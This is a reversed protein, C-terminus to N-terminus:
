PGLNVQGRIEGGGNAATHINAYTLGGVLAALQEANLTVTGALRGSAGFAGAPSLPFLVGAAVEPGAPGHIHAATAAGSLGSYNIDYTLQNGILTLIGSATATTNVPTPREAAGSLSVAIQAPAIQGRIEGGGNAATHINAYTKGSKLHNVQEATLTVQGSLTGSAGSGAPIAFPVLVGAAEAPTAPGHIHAAAPAGSLGSYSISYALTSGQLSFSGFGTADTAVPNPREAGGSLVATFLTVAVQAQDAVRFFGVNGVKTVTASANSTTLVGIWNSDSLSPKMQVLYPATGGTWTLSVSNGAAKVDTITLAAGSGGVPPTPDDKPDPHSFVTYFNVEKPSTVGLEPKNELNIEGKAAICIQKTTMAVSMQLTHIGGTKAANVFPFFSKTLNTISHQFENFALVRAAVQTQEYDPPQSVWSVTIRNLADVDLNARDFGGSFGAESVDASGVFSRDRSDWVVLRVTNETTLKGTLFVYPSNIHAGIRTGDGRGRDFSSGTATNQDTSGQLEGANNYFYLVGSARVCFGGKFAAVNSWIDGNAVVFSEKVITGDPAFITAVAANGDPNRVKSRDEVVSVFNGNDLAVLEGGFRTIQNNGQPDGSTLRGNASDQAKSLPTQGLTALDLKYTQVTGYRGDSLRDFGLNWRNDSQFEPFGHPSAEGGAIFNVAGPRKDGAVRGPNGNQRSLNIPGKFPTGNDAFFAEGLKGPTNDVPQFKVVYRQMDTTGEAFANGEILFVSNGLVSAYPEWNGLADLAPNIVVTDSVVRTLGVSEISGPNFSVAVPDSFPSTIVRGNRTRAPDQSYNATITITGGGFGAGTLDFEFQGAKPDLDTASDVVFSALYSRGQVFGNPLEPISAAIGTAIGEPDALYVDIITVPYTSNAIPVTGKLRTLTSNTSVVPVVGNNVDALAKTYYDLRFQGGNKVPDVPPTFNNVLVNGRMSLQGSAALEDFFSQVIDTPPFLDAPFNNFVVNGEVADSVGDLDSGFRYTSAGGAANLPPVGNTFRTLGDIGVGIYNGAVVINTGPTTGYFEITHDYGGQSPPVTGGIVNREDADNVGDGDTGIVSNNDGRGIEIAGEFTGPPIKPDLAPNYDRLGDPFVNLFNGSIRPNNGEIIIPIAPIGVIVNFESKANQSGPKVGVVVNDILIDSLVQPPDSQDRNRYRFGTVANAPGALTQGDVDVGIWCGNVHGSGGRAFSVGYVAIDDDTGLQGDGGPLLPVALIGVGRVQVNTAQLIGIVASETDGYGTQDTPVTPAFDMLRSNGNRSDLVIGIKANNAALIPNTNPSSGGQSYGDITVNNRTIVPYGGPPTLIYHTGTGAVDFKITDGDQLGTLAQLLSVTGQPPNVNDITTVTVVRAGAAQGTVKLRVADAAYEVEWTLGATLPAESYDKEKFQGDITGGKILTYVEGGNPAFGDLKVKLVGNTIRATGGVNITSHTASTIVASLTSKGPKPNGDADLGAVNGDPDVAMNFNGGITISASPGIVELTGDSTDPNTGSGLALYQAVRFSAHDRVTMVAKGGAASGGDRPASIGLGASANVTMQSNDQLTLTSDAPTESSLTSNFGGVIEPRDPPTQADIFGKGKLVDFIHFQGNNKLTMVTTGVRSSLVRINMVANDQITLNAHGGGISLTLYGEDTHGAPNGAGMGNGAEVLANGAIVMKQEVDGGSSISIGSGVSLRANGDILCSGNGAANEAIKLDDGFRAAADNHMEFRGMGLEGVEWDLNNNGASSVVQGAFDPRDPGDFFITGGNMIFTSLTASAGIVAKPNGTAANIKLVGGNMIVHGSETGGEVNGLAIAGLDNTGANAGITATKGNNILAIDTSGPLGTDWNNRDFFDGDGGTWTIITQANTSSTLLFGLSLSLTICLHKLKM